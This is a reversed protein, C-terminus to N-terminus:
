TEDKDGDLVDLDFLNYKSKLNFQPIADTFHTHKISIHVKKLTDISMRIHSHMHGIYSSWHFVNKETIIFLYHFM